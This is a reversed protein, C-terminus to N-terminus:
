LWPSLKLHKSLLSKQQIFWIMEKEKLAIQLKQNRDKTGGKL